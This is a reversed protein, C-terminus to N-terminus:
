VRRALMPHTKIIHDYIAEHLGNVFQCGYEERDKRAIRAELPAFGPLTIFLARDPNLYMPTIIKCGSRSLDAIMAKHHGFGKERVECPIRVDGRGFQRMNFATEDKNESEFEDTM